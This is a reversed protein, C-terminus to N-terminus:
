IVFKPIEHRVKHSHPSTIEGNSEPQQKSILAKATLPLAIGHKAGGFIISLQNRDISFALRLYSLFQSKGFLGNGFNQYKRKCLSYRLGCIFFYLDMLGHQMM